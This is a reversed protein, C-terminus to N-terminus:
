RDDTALGLAVLAAVISDIQQQETAGTISQRAVPAAGLFGIGTADARFRDLGDIVVGITQGADAFLLMGTTDLVIFNSSANSQVTWDNTVIFEVHDAAIQIGDGAGPAQIAQVRVINQPGWEVGNWVFPEGDYEGDPLVTGPTVDQLVATRQANVTPHDFQDGEAGSQSTYM